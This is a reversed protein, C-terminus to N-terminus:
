QGQKAAKATQLAQKCGDSIKDTHDRLCQLIRGGGPQIGPCLQRVDARCAERVAGKGTEQAVAPAALASLLAIALSLTRFTM